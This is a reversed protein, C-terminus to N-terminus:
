SKGLLRSLIKQKEELGIENSSMLIEIYFNLSSKAAAIIAEFQTLAQDVNGTGLVRELSRVQGEIRHIRGVLQREPSKNNIRM